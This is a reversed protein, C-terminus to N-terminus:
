IWPRLWRALADTGPAHRPRCSENSCHQCSPLPLPLACTPHPCPLTIFSSLLLLLECEAGSQPLRVEAFPGIAAPLGSQQQAPRFVPHAPVSQSRPLMACFFLCFWSVTCLRATVQEQAMLFHDWGYADNPAFSGGKMWFMSLPGRVSMFAIPIGPCAVM